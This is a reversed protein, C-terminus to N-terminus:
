KRGYVEVDTTDLDVTVAAALEAARGPPLMRLMRATAAAVGSEVAAWQGGSMRRALGVATSSALRPVPALAQGATDARQRDLGVMGRRAGRRRRGRVSGVLYTGEVRVIMPKAVVIM